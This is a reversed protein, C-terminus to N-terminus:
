MRGDGAVGERGGPWMRANAAVDACGGNVDNVDFMLRGGDGHGGGGPSGGELRLEEGFIQELEGYVEGM